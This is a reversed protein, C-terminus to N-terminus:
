NSPQTAPQTTVELRFTNSEGIERVTTPVENGDKDVRYFIYTAISRLRCDDSTELRATPAVTAVRELKFDGKPLDSYFTSLTYPTDFGNIKCNIQLRVDAGNQVLKKGETKYVFPEGVKVVEPVQITTGDKYVHRDIVDIESVTNTQTSQYVNNVLIVGLVVYSGLLLAFMAVLGTRINFLKRLM